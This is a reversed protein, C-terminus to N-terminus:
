GLRFTEYESVQEGFVAHVAFEGAGVDVRESEGCAGPASSTRNWGISFIEEEDPGLELRESEAEERCDLSSWVRTNTTIDYVVFGVPVETLDVECTGQTPNYLEVFFEADDGAPYVLSDPRVDLVVDSVECTDKDVTERTASSQYAPAETSSREASSSESPVSTVDEGDERSATVVEDTATDQGDEGGSTVLWVLLVIVLVVVVGAVIAAIRRRRYIEPPLQQNTM